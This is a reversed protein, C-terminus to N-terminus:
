PRRKALLMREDARNWSSLLEGTESRLAYGITAEVSAAELAESLRSVVSGEAVPLPQIALVAFEDGGLRAVTDSARIARQLSRAANVILADGAAHGSADNVAKLGDLDVVAVGAELGHRRCREEEAILVRQWGRRNLCGTLADTIADREARKLAAELEKIRDMLERNRSACDHPM